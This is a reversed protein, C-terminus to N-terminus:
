LAAVASIFKSLSGIGLSDSVSVCNEAFEDIASQM